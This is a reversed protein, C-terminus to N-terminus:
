GCIGLKVCYNQMAADIIQNLAAIRQTYATRLCAVNAGCTARGQLFVRQEDQAAGREGMLMPIKLRVAYIAAMQVDLESLGRDACIAKEAPQKARGCDFSAARSAPATALGALLLEPFIATWANNAAAFKLAELNM